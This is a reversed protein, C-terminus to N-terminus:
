GDANFVDDLDPAGDDETDVLLQGSGEFAIRYVQGDFAVSLNDIVYKEAHEAIKRLADALGEKPWRITAM